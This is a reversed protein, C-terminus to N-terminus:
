SNTGEEESDDTSSGGGTVSVLRSNLDRLRELLGYLAAQDPLPRFETDPGLRACPSCVRM